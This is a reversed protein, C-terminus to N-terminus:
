DHLIRRAEEVTEIAQNLQCEDTEDLIEGNRLHCGALWIVRASFELSTLAAAFKSVKGWEQRAKRESPSLQGVPKPFLDKLELGISHVIDLATCGAFCHLGVSGDDRESVYVTQHSKHEVAPCDARWGDQYHRKNELRSLIVNFPSDCITGVVM